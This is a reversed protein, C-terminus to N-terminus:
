LSKIELLHNELFLKTVLNNTVCDFKRCDSSFFDPVESMGCTNFNKMFFIEQSVIEQNNWEMGVIYIMEYNEIGM